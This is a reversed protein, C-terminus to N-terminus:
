PPSGKLGVQKLESQVGWLRRLYHPAWRSVAAIIFYKIMRATFFIWFITQLSHHALTALILAPQSILPSVGIIFLVWLGYVDFLNATWMWINSQVFEPFHETIWPLGWHLVLLSLGLAGLTSGIATLIAFRIWKKPTLLTSSILLGDTPVFIIFYDIGAVFGLLWEYWVRDTYKQLNSITKKVFKM